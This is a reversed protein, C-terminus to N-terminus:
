FMFYDLFECETFVESETDNIVTVLFEGNSQYIEIDYDQSLLGAAIRVTEKQIKM